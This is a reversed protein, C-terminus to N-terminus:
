DLVLEMKIDSRDFPIDSELVVEKFGYKRYIHLANELKTSSYLVLKHWQKQHAFEIAFNMLTQGIKLGQYKTTVAMKGLEYETPSLQLLAFCGVIEDNYQAFYIFGDKNIITEECNELLNIDKPEVYFYQELWAINLNKFDAAYQSSFPLIKLSKM